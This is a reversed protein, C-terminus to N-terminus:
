DGFEVLLDDAKRHVFPTEALQPYEVDGDGIIIATVPDAGVQDVFQDGLQARVLRARDDDVDALGVVRGYREKVLQPKAAGAENALEVIVLLVGDSELPGQSPTQHRTRPLLM